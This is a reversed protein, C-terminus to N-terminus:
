DKCNLWPVFIKGGITAKKRGVDGGGWACCSSSTCTLEVKEAECGRTCLNPKMPLKLLLNLGVVVKFTSIM